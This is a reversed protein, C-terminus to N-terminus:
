VLNQKIILLIFPEQYVAIFLCQYQDNPNEMFLKSHVLSM